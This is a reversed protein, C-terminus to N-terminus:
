ETEKLLKDYLDKQKYLYSLKFLRWWETNAIEIELDRITELYANEM